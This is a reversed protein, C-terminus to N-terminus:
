RSKGPSIFDSLCLRVPPLDIAPTPKMYAFHYKDRDSVLWLGSLEDRRYDLFRKEKPRTTCGENQSESQFYVRGPVDHNASGYDSLRVEDGRWIVIEFTSGKVKLYMRVDKVQTEWSGELARLNSKRIASLTDPDPSNKFSNKGPGCGSVILLFFATVM